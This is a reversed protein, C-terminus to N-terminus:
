KNIIQKVVEVLSEGKKNLNFSYNSFQWKKVFLRLSGMIVTSLINPDLDSRIENNTQGLRLIKQMVEENEKMIGAIKEILLKENTFIEESFIVSVLAPNKTFEQFHKNFVNSIKEVSNIDKDLEEKFAFQSFVKFTELISLLIHTKSEFHRYIAPESTGIKLAINKITLGQIGKESIIELSVQVIEKQRDTQM